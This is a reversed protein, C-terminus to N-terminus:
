GNKWRNLRFGVGILIAGSILFGAARLALPWDTTMCRAVMVLVLAVLGSNIWWRNHTRVGATVLGVPFAVTAGLFILPFIWEPMMKQVTVGAILLITPIVFMWRYWDSKYVYMLGVQIGLVIGLISIFAPNEVISIQTWEDWIVQFSGLFFTIFAGAAALGVLPTIM